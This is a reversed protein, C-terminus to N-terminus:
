VTAKASTLLLWGLSSEPLKGSCNRSGELCARDLNFTPSCCWLSPEGLLISTPPSALNKGLTRLHVEISGERMGEVKDRESELSSMYPAEAGRAGALLM